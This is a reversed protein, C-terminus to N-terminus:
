ESPSRAVTQWRISTVGPEISLRSAVHEIRRDQRGDTMLEAEVRVNSGAVNESQLSRSMLADMTAAQLLLARVHHEDPERCFATVKYCTEVEVGSTQHREILPGLPRLVTNTTVEVATTVAAVAWFGSGALVGV